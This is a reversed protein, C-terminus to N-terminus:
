FPSKKGTACALAPLILRGGVPMNPCGRVQWTTALVAHTIHWWAFPHSVEARPDSWLCCGMMSGLACPARRPAILSRQRRFCCARCRCRLRVADEVGRAGPGAHTGIRDGQLAIDGCVAGQALAESQEAAAARVAPTRREPRRSQAIAQISPPVIFWDAVAADDRALPRTDQAYVASALFM